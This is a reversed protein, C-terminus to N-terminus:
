GGNEGRGIEPRICHRRYWTSDMVTGVYLQGLYGSGSVRRCMEAFRWCRRAEANDKQPHGVCDIRLKSNGAGRTLGITYKTLRATQNLRM